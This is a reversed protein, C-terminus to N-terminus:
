YMGQSQTNMQQYPLTPSSTISNRNSAHSYSRNHQQQQQQTNSMNLSFNDVYQQNSNSNSNSSFKMIPSSPVHYLEEDMLDTMTRKLQPLVAVSTMKDTDKQHKTNHNSNLIM